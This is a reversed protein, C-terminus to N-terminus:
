GRVRRAGRGGGDVPRAAQAPCLPRPLQSALGDGDLLDADFRDATDCPDPQPENQRDGCPQADTLDICSSQNACTEGAEGIRVPGDCKRLFRSACSSLGSMAAWIRTASSWVSM